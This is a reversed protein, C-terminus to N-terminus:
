GCLLIYKGARESRGRRPAGELRGILTGVLWDSGVVVVMLGVLNRVRLRRAAGVGIGDEGESGAMGEMELRRKEERTLRLWGVDGAFGMWFDSGEDVAVEERGTRGIRSSGRGWRVEEGMGARVGGRGVEVPGVGRFIRVRVRRVDEERASKVNVHKRRQCKRRRGRARRAGVDFLWKSGCM